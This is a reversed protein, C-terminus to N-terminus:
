NPLYLDKASGPVGVGLFFKALGLIKEGPLNLNESAVAAFTTIGRVVSASASLPGQHGHTDVIKEDFYCSGDDYRKIGDFLKIIDNKLTTILSQDIESSALSIAGALAELAAGTADNSSDPNNSSHRWRGDSESLTKVSRFVKDADELHIDSGSADKILVLSGISYYFDLLSNAEKLSDKFRSEIGEFAVNNLECKLIGNSASPRVNSKKEIGLVDYTRLAEYTDELSGFSGDIPLFLEAAAARHFESVPSVIASECISTLVPLGLILFGLSGAM